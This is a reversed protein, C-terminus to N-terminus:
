NRVERRRSISDKRQREDSLVRPREKCERLIVKGSEFNFLFNNQDDKSLCFQCLIFSTELVCNKFNQYIFIDTFGEGCDLHHFYGDGGPPKKTDTYGMTNEVRGGTLASRTPPFPM